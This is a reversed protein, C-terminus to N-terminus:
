EINTYVAQVDEDDELKDLIVQIEEMQEDSVSIPTNPIYELTAKTMEIQM